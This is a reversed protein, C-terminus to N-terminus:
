NNSCFIILHIFLPNVLIDLHELDRKLKNSEIFEKTAIVYILGATGLIPSAIVEQIIQIIM